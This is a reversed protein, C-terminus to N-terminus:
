FGGLVINPVVGRIGDMLKVLELYPVSDSASLVLSQLQPWNQKEQLLKQKLSEIDYTTNKADIKFSSTTKGSLKFLINHDVTLEVQAVVENSADPSQKEGPAGFGADIIGISLFSASALLFTVLVTLCDIVPALNLEFDESHSQHIKLKM